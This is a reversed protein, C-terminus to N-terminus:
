IIDKVYFCPTVAAIKGGTTDSITGHMIGHCVTPGTTTTMNGVIVYGLDFVPGGSYGGISPNELTFFDSPIQTDFRPLTILSSSAHSRFTFPSFKGVGGLGNPFGVATLYDDRSPPTQTFKLQDVPFFRGQLIPIISTELIIPLVSVDAISHHTWNLTKNLQSLLFTQCNGNNDSIVVQTSPNCDHAVHSATLLYPSKEDKLIFMGSGVVTGKATPTRLNCVVQFTQDRTLRISM